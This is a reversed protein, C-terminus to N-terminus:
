NNELPVDRIIFDCKDKTTPMIIVQVKKDLIHSIMKGIKKPTWEHWYIRKLDFKTGMEKGEMM